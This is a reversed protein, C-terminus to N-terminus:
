YYIYCYFSISDLKSLILPIDNNINVKDTEMSSKAMTALPVSPCFLVLPVLGPFKVLEDAELVLEAAVFGVPLLIGHIAPFEHIHGQLNM